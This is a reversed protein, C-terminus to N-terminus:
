IACTMKRWYLPLLYISALGWVLLIVCWVQWEATFRLTHYWAYGNLLGGGVCFAILISFVRPTLPLKDLTGKGKLLVVLYPVLIALEGIKHQVTGNTWFANTFPHLNADACYEVFAYIIWSLGAFVVALPSSKRLNMITSILAKIFAAWYKQNLTFWFLLKRVAL